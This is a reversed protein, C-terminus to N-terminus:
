IAKTFNENSAQVTYIYLNPPTEQKETWLKLRFNSAKKNKFFYRNYRCIKEM